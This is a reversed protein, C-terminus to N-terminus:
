WNLSDATFGGTCDASARTRWGRFGCYRKNQVFFRKFYSKLRLLTINILSFKESMILMPVSFYNVQFFISFIDIMHNLSIQNSPLSWKLGRFPISALNYRVDQNKKQSTVFLSFVLRIAFVKQSIHYNEFISNKLEPKNTAKCIKSESRRM